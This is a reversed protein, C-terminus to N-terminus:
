VIEVRSQLESTHEESRLLRNLESAVELASYRERFLDIPNFGAVAEAAARTYLRTKEEENLFAKWSFHADSLPLSDVAVFRKAKFELSVKRESVPLSNVIPAIVWRRIPRPVSSYWRRLKAAVYTTYGAFIEDGGEGSLVVKVEERAARSICYLAIASSD